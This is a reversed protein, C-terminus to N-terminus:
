AHEFLTKQPQHELAAKNMWLVETRERAGDALAEREIRHWDPYLDQDYLESPYGSIVVMGEVTRLQEALSRHDELGMEHAYEHKTNRVDPLYPPDVYFLTDHRDHTEIVRAADRNEIVVGQLREHFDQLHDPYHAWDYAPTTGSRFANARFGTPPAWTSARTRMGDNKKRWMSSSGFGMYCKVLTRRAQEVPDESPEYAARFELRSYPTKRLLEELEAVKEADRLVEFLNVVEGALDNYVEAYARPKRILVSAAGGFPEVYIRHEPLHDIIWPALRWKGGYYRM